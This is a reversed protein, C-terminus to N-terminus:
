VESYHKVLVLECVLGHYDVPMLLNFDVTNPYSVNTVIGLVKFCLDLEAEYCSSLTSVLIDM